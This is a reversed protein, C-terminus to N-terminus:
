NSFSNETIQQSLARKKCILAYIIHAAMFGMSCFAIVMFTFTGYYWENCTDHDTGLALSIFFSVVRPDSALNKGDQYIMINTTLSFRSSKTTEALIKGNPDLIKWEYSFISESSLYGYTVSEDSNTINYLLTYQSLPGEGKTGFPWNSVKVIPNNHCDNIFRTWGFLGTKETRSIMTNNLVMEYESYLYNSPCRMGVYGKDNNISNKKNWVYLLPTTITFNESENIYDNFKICNVDEKVIPHDIKGIALVFILSSLGLIFTICIFSLYGITRRDM